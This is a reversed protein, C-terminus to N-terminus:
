PVEFPDAMQAAQGVAPTGGDGSCRHGPHQAAPDDGCRDNSESTGLLNVAKELRTKRDESLRLNLLDLSNAPQRWVPHHNGLHAIADGYDCSVADAGLDILGTDTAQLCDGVQLEVPEIPAACSELLSSREHRSVTEGSQRRVAGDIEAGDAPRGHRVVDAQPSEKEGDPLAELLIRVDPRGPKERSDVSWEIAAAGGVDVHQETALFVAPSYEPAPPM